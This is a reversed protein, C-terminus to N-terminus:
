VVRERERERERRDYASHGVARVSASMLRLVQCCLEFRFRCELSSDGGVAIKSAVSLKLCRESRDSVSDESSGLVRM